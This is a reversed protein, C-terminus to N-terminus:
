KLSSDSTFSRLCASSPLFQLGMMGYFSNRNAEKRNKRPLIQIRVRRRGRSGSDGTATFNLVNFM